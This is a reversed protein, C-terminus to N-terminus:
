VRITLPYQRALKSAEAIIRDRRIRLINTVSNSISGAPVEDSRRTDGQSEIFNRKVERVSLMRAMVGMEVIDEMNIPMLCVSQIDSSTTSARVFPAKYRVRLTGAMSVEDFTLAFGSAFDSTPLDRSLRVGRLVPYDSALYRLRVDILDIITTASTLNVQRDAGNYDVSATVVRFLGNSPSSLDDLEQNFSDLLQQQPFRPNLIALAGATHAAATTGLYGREVTLTKSGSEAVWIYMLESDIEFVSGARLGALDYSMVISTDASTVTTALKNREEITGSLLQRSVRNILAGATSM